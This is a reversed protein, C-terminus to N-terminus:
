INFLRLSQERAKALIRLTLACDELERYSYLSPFSKQREEYRKKALDAPVEGNANKAAPDAGLKLLLGAAEAKCGDAAYHLPTNGDADRVNVDAGRSLLLKIVKIYGRWAALHLPTQGKSNVANIDAVEALILATKEGGFWSLSEHLPTDGDKDRANPDAGYKLLLEVACRNGRFAALHLPTFGTSSKANPDAGRELLVQVVDCYMSTHMVALHLPTEGSITKANPDAGHNLLLRAVEAHGEYAAFHLPTYGLYDRVNPDAGREILKKVCLLYGFRSAKFIDTCRARHCVADPDVPKRGAALRWIHEWRRLLYTTYNDGHERAYDLPTKGSIDKITPDAYHELLIKVAADNDAMAAYHLPTRGGSDRVNPSARPWPRLLMKLIEVGENGCMVAYHLPTRGEEDCADRSVWPHLMKWVKEADCSAVAEHLPSRRGPSCSTHAAQERRKVAEEMLEVLEYLRKRRALDIASMCKGNRIRPDALYELLRRVAYDNRRWVAYHLPTNGYADQANPDAGYYLLTEENNKVMVAWHLPTRGRDDRANPDAGAEILKAIVEDDAKVAYHLPTRGRRDKANVDAKAKILLDVVKVCEALVAAHLPTREASTHKKNVDAGTEILSKVKEDDCRSAAEYLKASIEVNTPNSEFMESM